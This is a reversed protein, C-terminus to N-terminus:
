SSTSATASRPTRSRGTPACGATAPRGRRATTPRRSSASARSSRGTARRITPTLCSRRCASTVRRSTRRTTGRRAARSARSGHEPAELDPRRRPERVRRADGRRRLAARARGHPGLGELAQAGLRRVRAGREVADVDRRPRPQELHERRAVRERRRRLDRRVRRRPDVHYIPWGECYPGRLKWDRREENSELIFCGKRTGVLLLTKSM